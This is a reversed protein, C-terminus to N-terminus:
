ASGKVRTTGTSKKIEADSLLACQGCEGCEVIGRVHDAWLHGRRGCVACRLGPVLEVVGM